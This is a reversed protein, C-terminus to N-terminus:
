LYKIVSSTGHIKKAEYVAGDAIKLLEEANLQSFSHDDICVGGLSFQIPIQHSGLTFCQSFLAKIKGIIVELQQRNVQVLIMSFEDGGLRAITDTERLAKKIVNVFEKLLLDGIPHGYSDNVLKFDDLDFYLISFGERHRRTQKIAQNLRDEFLYRNAAGTLADFLALKKLKKTLEFDRIISQIAHQLLLITLSHKNLTDITSNSINNIQPDNFSETLILIPYENLQHNFSSYISKLIVDCYVNEAILLSNSQRNKSLQALETTSIKNISKISINTLLLSAKLWDFLKSDKCIIYIEITNAGM